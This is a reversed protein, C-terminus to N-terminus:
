STAADQLNPWMGASTNDIAQYGKSHLAIRMESSHLTWIRCSRSTPAAQMEAMSRIQRQSSHQAQNSASSALWSQLSLM